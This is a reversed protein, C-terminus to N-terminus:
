SVGDACTLCQSLCQACNNADLIYWGTPCPNACLLGRKRFTPLCTNCQNSDCTACGTPCAQCTTVGIQFYSASCSLVCTNVELLRPATCSLCTTATTICTACSVLNCPTCVTGLLYYGNICSICNGIGNCQICQPECAFCVGFADVYYGIGCGAICTIGLLNQTGPCSTCDFPTNVCTKCTNSCAKCEFNTFYYGPQCTLCHVPSNDEWCTKCSEFCGFFTANLERM